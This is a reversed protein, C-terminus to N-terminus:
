ADVASRTGSRNLGPMPGPRTGTRAARRCSAVVELPWLAQAAGFVREALGARGGRTVLEAGLWALLVLLVTVAAASVAPRLGWPVSPGRRWAGAPWAVLAACEAAAWIMHPLPFSTGPQEPNGAVLIGAVAAAILILRRPARAPRLALGTVVDCAGVVQFTLTMVWRDAAGPAAPVSVPRLAPRLHSLAPPPVRIIM